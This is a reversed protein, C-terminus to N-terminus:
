WGSGAKGQFYKIKIMNNRHTKIAKHVSLKSSEWGEVEEEPINLAAAM